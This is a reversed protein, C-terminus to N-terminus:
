KGKRGLSLSGPAHKLTPAWTDYANRISMSPLASDTVSFHSQHFSSLMALIYTGFITLCNYSCCLPSLPQSQFGVYLLDHQFDRYTLPKGTSQAQLPKRVIQSFLLHQLAPLHSIKPMKSSLRSLWSRIGAM